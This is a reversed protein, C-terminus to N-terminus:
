KENNILFKKTRKLQRTNDVCYPPKSLVIYKTKKLIKNTILSEELKFYSKLKNKIIKKKIFKFGCEKFKKKKSETSLKLKNAKIEIYGESSSLLCLFLHSNFKLFKEYAKQINFNPLEDANTYFFKNDLQNYISYLSIFTGQNKKKDLFIKYNIKNKKNFESLFNIIKKNKYSLLFLFKKFGAKKLRILLYYLFPKGNINIIPKPTNRTIAGLRRGLGGAMIVCPPMGIKKM